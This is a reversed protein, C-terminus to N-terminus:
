AGETEFEKIANEVSGIVVNEFLDSEDDDYGAKNVKQSLETLLSELRKIQTDTLKM